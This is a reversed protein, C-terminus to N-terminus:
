AAGRDQNEAPKPRKRARRHHAEVQRRVDAVLEDRRRRMLRVLAMVAVYAAILLLVADARSMWEM